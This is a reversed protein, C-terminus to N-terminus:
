SLRCLNLYPVLASLALHCVNRFVGWHTVIIRIQDPITAYGPTEEYKRGYVGIIFPISQADVGNRPIDERNAFSLFSNESHLHTQHGADMISALLLDVALGRTRCPVRVDIVHQNLSHM